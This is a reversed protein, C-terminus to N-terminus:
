AACSQLVNTKGFKISKVKDFFNLNLSDINEVKGIYKHAATIGASTFVTAALGATLGGLTTPAILMIFLGSLIIDTLLIHDMMTNWLVPKYARTKWLLFGTGIAAILGTIVGTAITGGIFFVSVLLVLSTASMILEGNDMSDELTVVNENNEM